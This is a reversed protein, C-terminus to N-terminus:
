FCRFGIMNTNVSVDIQIYTVPIRKIARASYEWILLWTGPNSDREHKQMLKNQGFQSGLCCSPQGMWLKLTWMIQCSQVFSVLFLMMQFYKLYCCSEILDKVFYQMIVFINGSNESKKKHKLHSLTLPHFDLIRYFANTHIASMLLIGIAPKYQELPFVTITMSINLPHYYM